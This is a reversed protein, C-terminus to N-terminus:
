DFLLLSIYNVAVAFTQIFMRANLYMILGAVLEDETFMLLM